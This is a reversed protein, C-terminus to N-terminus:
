KREDDYRLLYAPFLCQVAIMAEALVLGKEVDLMEYFLIRIM